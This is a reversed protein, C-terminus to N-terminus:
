ASGPVLVHSTLLLSYFLASTEVSRAPAAPWPWAAPHGPRPRRERPGPQPGPGSRVQAPTAARFDGHLRPGVRDRPVWGPDGTQPRLRATAGGECSTM